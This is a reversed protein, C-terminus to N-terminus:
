RPRLGDLLADVSTRVAAEPTTGDLMGGTLMSALGQLTAFLVMAAEAPDGPRLEGAEQGAVIVAVVTAFAADAADHLPGDPERHKGAFMLELLAADQTAFRVYAAACRRLRTRFASRGGARAAAALETGLREFGHLALADLLAQRDPFHRRPAAHSVGVDRAIERLSLDAAGREAVIAAARDLLAERLNGHHYRREAVDTVGPLTGSSTSTSLM